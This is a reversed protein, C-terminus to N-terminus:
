SADGFPAPGSGKLEGRTNKVLAKGGRGDPFQVAVTDGVMQFLTDGDLTVSGSWTQRGRASDTRLTAITQFKEGETTALTVPGSYTTM